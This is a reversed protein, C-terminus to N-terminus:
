WSFFFELTFANKVTIEEGNLKYTYDVTVTHMFRNNHSSNIRYTGNLLPGAGSLSFYNYSGDRNSTIDYRYTNDGKTAVYYGGTTTNSTFKLKGDKKVEKKIEKAYWELLQEETAKKKGSKERLDELIRAQDQATMTSNPSTWECSVSAVKLKKDIYGELKPKPLFMVLITIITGIVM